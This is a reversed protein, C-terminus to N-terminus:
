REDERDRAAMLAASDGGARLAAIADARRIIQFLLGADLAFRVAIADVDAAFQTPRPHTCLALATYTEPTCGLRLRLMETSIGETRAFTELTHALFRPNAVAHQLLADFSTM